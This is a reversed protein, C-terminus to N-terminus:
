SLNEARGRRWVAPTTGVARTFAEYFASRSRFGALLGIAEISTRSERPDILLQQAVAIRAARVADRFTEGRLAQLAAEIERPSIGTEAAVAAITLDPEACRRAIAGRLRELTAGAAKPATAAKALLPELGRAGLFIALALSFFAVGCVSPVVDRILAAEPWAFRVSQALHLAGISAICIFALRRSRPPASRRSAFLTAASASYAMQLWIFDEAQWTRAQAGNAFLALAVPVAAVTWSVRQGLLAAIFFLVLPGAALTAALEVAGVVGKPAGLNSHDVIIALTAIAAGVLFSAAYIGAPARRMGARVGLAAGFILANASGAVPLLASPSVVFDMSKM